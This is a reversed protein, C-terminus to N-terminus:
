QFKIAKAPPIKSIVFSPILLMLICTLLTGLNLILIYGINLYVPATRVYYTAPNLEFFGIYKQILLMLIGIANGWILGITVLYAANYLFVKQISWNTAGMAKLMGILQTRELILVLLATIMNIGAVLIMIGIIGVINMDFLKLWEFITYFKQTIPTTDLDSPIEEFIADGKADIQDFDDLYVEFNGIEDEQWKNLKQIHRIDSLIYTQDFQELGSDFLASLQFARVNPRKQGENKLFYVIVKDGVSFGLRNALYTSMLVSRNITDTRYDPLEGEEIFDRFYTWDYDKGVGKVIVGEFDSDTRIIGAKSAVGQIHRIGSISNFKPYFTQNISIPQVSVESNNTDYKSISIHGNFASVKERIKKQLGVGTAVAVLMVMIGIAIAIIAIRVIPASLASSKRKGQILRKAIFYEFNM